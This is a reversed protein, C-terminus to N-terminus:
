ILGAANSPKAQALLPALLEAADFLEMLVPVGDEEFFVVLGEAIDHGGGPASRGNGLSLTDGESEYYIDINDSKLFKEFSAQKGVDKHVIVLSDTERTKPDLFQKVAAEAIDGDRESYVVQSSESVKGDPPDFLPGLLEAADFIMIATPTTGDYDFFVIVQNKVIDFGRPAPNGNTLWLTDTEQDFSIKLKKRQVVRESM